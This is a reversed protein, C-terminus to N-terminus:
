KPRSKYITDLQEMTYTFSEDFLKCSRASTVSSVVGGETHYESSRDCIFLTGTATDLMFLETANGSSSPNIVDSNSYKGQFLQYRGIESKIEPKAVPPKTTASQGSASMFIIFLCIAIRKM